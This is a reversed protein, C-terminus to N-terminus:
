SIIKLLSLQIYQNILFLRNSTAVVISFWKGEILKPDDQELTLLQEFKEESFSKDILVAFILIIITWM